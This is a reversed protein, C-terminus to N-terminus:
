YTRESNNEPETLKIFSYENSFHEAVNYASEMCHDSLIRIEAVLTGNERLWLLGKLLQELSPADENPRLYIYLETDAGSKVPTLLLGKLMWIILVVLAAAIFGVLLKIFM